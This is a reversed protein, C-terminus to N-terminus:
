VENSWLMGRTVIVDSTEKSVSCSQNRTLIKLKDWQGKTRPCHISKQGMTGNDRSLSPVETGIQGPPCSFGTGNSVRTLVDKPM